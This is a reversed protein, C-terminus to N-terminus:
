GLSPEAPLTSGLLRAFRAASPLGGFFLVEPLSVIRRERVFDFSRWLPSQLLREGAPGSRGVFSILSFGAAGALREVGVTSFGYLNTAETWSNELDLRKLVADFLSNRGFVLARRGDIPTAVYFRRRSMSAIKARTESLVREFEDAYRDYRDTMALRDAIQRLSAASVDLPQGATSVTAHIMVPAIRELKARAMMQTQDIIILDPKLGSLLELNPEPRLGIEAVSPPLEPEVVLRAYREKEPTCLPEVGLTILDQTAPWSLAAVRAHSSAVARAACITLGLGGILARRSVGVRRM